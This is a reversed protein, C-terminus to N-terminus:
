LMGTLKKLVSQITDDSMSGAQGAKLNDFEDGSIGLRPADSTRLNLVRMLEPIDTLADGSSFQEFIATADLDAVDDTLYDHGAADDSHEVSSDTASGATDEESGAPKGTQSESSSDHSSAGSAEQSPSSAPAGGPSTGASGDTSPAETFQANEADNANTGATNSPFFKRYLFWIIAAVILILVLKM